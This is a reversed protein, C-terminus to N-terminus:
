GNCPGLSRIQGQLFSIAHSGHACLSGQQANEFLQSVARLNHHWKHQTQTDLQQQVRRVLTDRRLYSDPPSIAFSSPDM